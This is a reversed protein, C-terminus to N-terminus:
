QQATAATRVTLLFPLLLVQRRRRRWKESVAPRGADRPLLHAAQQQPGLGWCLGGGPLLLLMPPQGTQHPLQGGKQQVDPVQEGGGGGGATRRAAGGYWDLGAGSLTCRFTLGERGGGEHM